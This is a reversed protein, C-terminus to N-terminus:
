RGRALSKRAPSLTATTDRKELSSTSVYGDDIRSRPNCARRTLPWDPRCSKQKKLLLAWFSSTPMEIEVDEKQARGGRSRVRTPDDRVPVREVHRRLPAPPATGGVPAVVRVGREGSPVREPEQTGSSDSSLPV